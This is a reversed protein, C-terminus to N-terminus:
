LLCPHTALKLVSTLCNNLSHHHSSLRVHSNGHALRISLNCGMGFWKWRTDIPTPPGTDREQPSQNKQPISQDQAHSGQHIRGIHRHTLLIDM